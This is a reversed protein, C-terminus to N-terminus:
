SRVQCMVLSSRRPCQIMYATLIVVATAPNAQLIRECVDVGCLDPLKLGLLVADPHQGAVVRLAEWGTAAEGVVEFRPDHDLIFHLGQRVLRHDDVLVVRVPCM